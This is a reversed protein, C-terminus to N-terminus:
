SCFILFMCLSYLYVREHLDLCSGNFVTRRSFRWSIGSTTHLRPTCEHHSPSTHLNLKMVVHLLLVIMRHSSAQSMEGTKITISVSVFWPSVSFARVWRM